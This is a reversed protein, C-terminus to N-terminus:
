NNRGFRRCKIDLIKGRSPTASWSLTWKLYNDNQSQADLSQENRLLNLQSVRLLTLKIEIGAALSTNVIVLSGVCCSVRYAQIENTEMVLRCCGCIFRIM